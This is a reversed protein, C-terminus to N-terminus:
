KKAPAAKGDAAAGAAGGAVTTAAADAAGATPTAEEKDDSRGSISVITADVRKSAAKVGEPLKIDSLHISSGIELTSVDVDIAAPISAVKSLLQVSHSVVNLVGGRKIGPAKEAGTIHVPVTVKVESKADVQQFDVHEIKDSVPHLQVERAIGMIKKGGLELNVVKSMFGGKIYAQTLQNANVTAHVTDKGHAYLVVPVQGDRRAARASGKGHTKRAEAKFELAAQM